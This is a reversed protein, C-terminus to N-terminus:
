LEGRLIRQINSNIEDRTLTGDHCTLRYRKELEHDYEEFRPWPARSFSQNWDKDLQVMGAVPDLELAVQLYRKCWKCAQEVETEDLTGPFHRFEVTDTGERLHRLNVAHRPALHWLPAGQRGRPCEAAFFEDTTTAKLQLELRKGTVVTHHSVLRRRYRRLTGQFVPDTEDGIPRPIPEIANLLTPLNVYGFTALRKLAVLDDRLRPVRVHVHLNSRYNVAPHTGRLKFWEKLDSVLVGQDYAAHTPPSNLEGGRYWVVGKPDVAIGSSNVMTVDNRDIGWGEPLPVRRDWDVWEHECGFTWTSSNLNVTV